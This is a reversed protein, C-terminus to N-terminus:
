GYSVGYEIGGGSTPVGCITKPARYRAYPTIQPVATLAGTIASGVSERENSLGSGIADSIYNIAATAAGAGAGRGVSSWISKLPNKGYIAGSVANTLGGTLSERLGVTGRSIKQEVASGVIGAIFDTAVTAVVGAGSVVMGM